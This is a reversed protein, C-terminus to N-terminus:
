NEALAEFYCDAIVLWEELSGGTQFNENSSPNGFTNLASDPSLTVVTPVVDVGQTYFNNIDAAKEGEDIIYLTKDYVYLGTIRVTKKKGDENVTIEPLYHFGARSNDWIIAGIQRAEMDSILGDKANNLLRSKDQNTNDM